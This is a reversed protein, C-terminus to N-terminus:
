TNNSQNHFVYEGGLESVLPDFSALSMQAAKRFLDPQHYKENLRNDLVSSPRFIPERIAWYRNTSVWQMVQLLSQQHEDIMDDEGKQNDEEEDTEEIEEENHSNSEVSSDGSGSSSSSSSSSSSLSSNTYSGLSSGTRVRIESRTSIDGFEELFRVFIPASIQVAFAQTVQEIRSHRPM